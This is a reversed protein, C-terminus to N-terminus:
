HHHSFQHNPCFKSQFLRVLGQIRNALQNLKCSNQNKLKQLYATLLTKNKEIDEDINLTNIISDKQTVIIPISATQMIQFPLEVDANPDASNMKKQALAWNQM